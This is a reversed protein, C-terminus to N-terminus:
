LTLTRPLQQVKMLFPWDDDWHEITCCSRFCSFLLSLPLAGMWLLIALPFSLGGTSWALLRGLFSVMGEWTACFSLSLTIPWCSSFLPHPCGLFDFM